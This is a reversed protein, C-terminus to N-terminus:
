YSKGFFYLWRFNLPKSHSLIKIFSKFIRLPLNSFSTLIYYFSQWIVWLFLTTKSVLITLHWSSLMQTSIDSRCSFPPFPSVTWTFSALNPSVSFSSYHSIIKFVQETISVSYILSILLKCHFVAVVPPKTNSFGGALAPLHFFCTWNRPQSCRSFSIAVWELIRVQLIGRVSSGPPSCDM